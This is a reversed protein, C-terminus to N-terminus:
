GGIFQFEEPNLEEVPMLSEVPTEVWIAVVLTVSLWKTIKVSFKFDAKHNGKNSDFQDIIDIAKEVLAAEEDNKFSAVTTNVLENDQALVGLKLVKM